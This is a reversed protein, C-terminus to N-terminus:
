LPKVIAASATRPVTQPMKAAVPQLRGGGGCVMPLGVATADAQPDLEAMRRVGVLRRDADVVAVAPLRHTRLIERVEDDSQEPSCLLPAPSVLEGVPSAMAGGRLSARRLAGETLM